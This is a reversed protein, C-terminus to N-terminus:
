RPTRGFGKEAAERFAAYSQDGNGPFGAHQVLFVLILGRKPDISMNTALAGGHGFTAGDTSWGFGYGEPVSDATQKRTMQVVAAKSLYRRGRFVGGNLIMQCFRGVDSATSFLGGAPMPQRGPKNLPYTLQGIMTEELDTKGANSKYAAAIRRIQAATPFFSTDTMGLPGFLRRDLFTEFPMGSVMEVICGATNIGANCYQYKTDPQFQLPTMAYSRVATRLPLQDLTPTEVASCFPMGSTHNLINRVTIPHTPKKLLIHEADQEVALWQDKFEPLYTEVPDDVRVKGEDVLMMLATATIPKTQSAIWFLSDTAMKRKRAVHAFGVAELSLVRDKGAVLTVAGALSRRDVFPQLVSAMSPRKSEKTKM